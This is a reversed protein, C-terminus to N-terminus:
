PAIWNSPWSYQTQGDDLGLTDITDGSWFFVNRIGRLWGRIDPDEIWNDLLDLQFAEDVTDGKLWVEVTDTDNTQKFVLGADIAKQLQQEDWEDYAPGTNRQNKQVPRSFNPNAAEGYAISLDIDASLLVKADNENAATWTIDCITMGAEQLVLRNGPKRDFVYRFLYPAKIEAVVHGQEVWATVDGTYDEHATLRQVTQEVLKQSPVYSGGGREILVVMERWDDDTYLGSGRAFNVVDAQDFGFAGPNQEVMKVLKDPDDFPLDDLQLQEGEETQVSLGHQIWATLVTEVWAKLDEDEQNPEKWAEEPHSNFRQLVAVANALGDVDDETSAVFGHQCFAFIMENLKGAATFDLVLQGGHGQMTQTSVDYVLDVGDEESDVKTLDAKQLGRDKLYQEARSRIQELQDAGYLKAAEDWGEPQQALVLRSRYLRGAIRILPM